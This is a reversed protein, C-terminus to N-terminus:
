TCEGRLIAVLAGGAARIVLVLTVLYLSWLCATM